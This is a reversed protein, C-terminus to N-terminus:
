QMRAAPGEEEDDRFQMFHEIAGMKLEQGWSQVEMFQNGGVLEVAYLTDSHDGGVEGNQNYILIPLDGGQLQSLDYASAVFAQGGEFGPVNIAPFGLETDEPNMDKEGVSDIVLYIPGPGLLGGTKSKLSELSEGLDFRFPLYYGSQLSSLHQWVANAESVPLVAVDVGESIVGIVIQEEMVPAESFAEFLKIHKM